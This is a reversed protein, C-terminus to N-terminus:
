VMNGASHQKGLVKLRYNKEAVGAINSALCTYKGADAVKVQQLPLTHEEVSSRDSLSNSVVSGIGKEIIHGNHLWEIDPKPKGRTTCVMSVDDGM